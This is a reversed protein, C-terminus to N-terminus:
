HPGAAALAEIPGKATVTQRIGKMIKETAEPSGTIILMQKNLELLEADSLTRTDKDGQSSQEIALKAKQITKNDLGSADVVAVADATRVSPTVTAGELKTQQNRLLDVQAQLDKTTSIEAASLQRQGASPDIAISPKGLTKYDIEGISARAQKMGEDCKAMFESTDIGFAGLLAAFGRATALLAVTTKQGMMDLDFLKQAQENMLGIQKDSVAKQLDLNHKGAQDALNVRANRVLKMLEPRLTTILDIAKVNGDMEAQKLYLDWVVAMAEIRALDNDASPDKKYREDALAQANKGQIIQQQLIKKSDTEVEPATGTSGKDAAM